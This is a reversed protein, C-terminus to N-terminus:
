KAGGRHHRSQHHKKKRHHRHPRRHKPRPNGPGTFRPTAPSSEVPPPPIPGRCGDGACPTPPPPPEAFGGDVRSVYLDRLSDRDRGLLQQKTVFSVTKGDASSNGMVADFEGRGSSILRQRGTEVNYEYVDYVENTDEPVLAEETSFFLHTGDSSFYRVTTPWSSDTGTDFEKADDEDPIHVVGSTTQPQVESGPAAQLCSACVLMEKDDDYVYIQREQADDLGTLGREEEEHSIGDTTMLAFRSGDASARASGPYGDVGEVEARTLRILDRRTGNKWLTVDVSSIGSQTLYYVHSGNNSTALVSSGGNGTYLSGDKQGSSILTLNQEAVPDPGDTYMYLDAVSNEDEDLLQSTTSFLIHRSDPAIYQLHVDKAASVPTSGEPESVWVTDSHNRRAYLQDQGEQPSLFTVLSGDPSVTGPLAGIPPSTAGEAAPSGDPLISALRLTGEEWEYVSPRGAPAEPLLRTEAMFAIVRQDSSTGGKGVPGNQQFEGFSPEEAFSKSITMLSGSRTDEWYANMVDPSDDSVQPLDGTRVIVHSLDESILSVTTTLEFVPGANTPPTPTIGQPEEWGDPGRRSVYETLGLSGSGRTNGFYGKSVFGTANGDSAMPANWSELEIKGGNKGTPSVMEWARCGPLNTANQEIRIAENPCGPDAPPSGFTTFHNDAGPLSGTANGAVLRFHYTTNPQLGSIGSSAFITGDTENEHELACPVTAGYAATLGYEFKCETVTGSDRPDITGALRAETDNVLSVPASPLYGAAPPVTPSQFSEEAVTRGGDNEAVLKVTYNQNPEILLHAEHEVAHPSNDAALEGEGGDCSPVCEFRWKTRYEAEVEPSAPEAEPANPNVTGSFTAATGNNGTVPNITVEPAALTPAPPTEFTTTAVVEGLEAPEPTARKGTAQEKSELDQTTAINRAILEVKYSTEPKLGTVDDSVVHDVGDGPVTRGYELGSCEPVCHFDYSTKQLEGTGGPNVTGTLHASRFDFSTVPDVTPTPPQVPEGDGFFRVDKEGTGLAGSNVLGYVQGSTPSVALPLFDGPIVLFSVLNGSDDWERIGHDNNSIEGFTGELRYAREGSEYVDGTSYDAAIQGGGLRAPGGSIPSAIAYGGGGPFTLSYRWRCRGGTAYFSDSVFAVDILGCGAEPFRLESNFDSNKPPNASPMYKDLHSFDYSGSPLEPARREYAIYLNGAADTALDIPEPGGPNTNGSGDITGLHAGAPSYVEVNNGVVVYIDGATGAPAGPPAIAVDRPKSLPMGNSGAAPGATFPEPAGAATFRFLTPEGVKRERDLVYVDQSGPDVAIATPSKFQTANGVGNPGFSGLLPHVYLTVAGAASALICGLLLLALSLLGSRGAVRQARFNHRDARNRM